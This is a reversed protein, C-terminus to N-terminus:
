RDEVKSSQEILYPILTKLNEEAELLHTRLLRKGTRYDKKKIQEYITRHEEQSNNPFYEERNVLLMYMYRCLSSQIAKYFDIIWPNESAEILLIHFNGIIEIVSENNSREDVKLIIKEHNIRLEADMSEINDIKKKAISDMASCELMMRVSCINKFDELSVTTVHVGKRPVGVLLRENELVRFAERVPTTSVHLLEALNEENLRQGPAFSGSIIKNRIIDSVLKMTTAIM